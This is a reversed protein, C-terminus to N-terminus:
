KKSKGENMKGEGKESDETERKSEKKETELNHSTIREALSQFNRMSHLHLFLLELEDTKALESLKENSLEKLRNRNVAMFGTLGMQQGTKLTIQAQMPELLDLEKVKKCFAQTIQFQTQYEKLFNLVGELYQTREGDADFLREGRDEQDCGEYEEDICLTFTSGNDSSSFVFPYRRVFAPVYKATWNLDESLFLNERDRVGMIVVPMVNEETGSFVITYESAAKPIEVAMLPVSNVHKAFAYNTQKRVSWNGHRQYSVPVAREYILLQKAM